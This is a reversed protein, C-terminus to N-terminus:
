LKEFLHRIQDLKDLKLVTYCSIDGISYLYILGLGKSKLVECLEIEFFVDKLWDNNKKNYYKKFKKYKLNFTKILEKKNIGLSFANNLIDFKNKDNPYSYSVLYKNDVLYNLCTIFDWNDEDYNYALNGDSILYVLKQLFEKENSFLDFWSKHQEYYISNEFYAASHKHKELIKNIEDIDKQTKLLSQKYIIRNIFRDILKM